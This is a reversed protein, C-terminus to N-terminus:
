PILAHLLAILAALLAAIRWRHLTDWQHHIRLWDPGAAAVRNNRPVLFLITAVITLAWLIASALLYPQAPTHRHLWAESGLLLLCLAYWFPMVTGLLRALEAAIPRDDFKWIAPNLFLSVALENGTLLTCLLITPIDLLHM